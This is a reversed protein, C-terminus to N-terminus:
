QLWASGAWAAVDLRSGDKFIFTCGTLYEMESEAIEHKWEARMASEVEYVHLRDSREALIPTFQALEAITVASNFIDGSNDISIRAM